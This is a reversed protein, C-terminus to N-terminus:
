SRPDLQDAIENLALALARAITPTMNAVRGQVLMAVCDFRAKPFVVPRKTCEGVIIAAADDQVDSSLRPLALEETMTLM